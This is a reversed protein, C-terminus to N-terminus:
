VDFGLHIHDRHLPNAFYGTGAGVPVLPGGIEDSGTAGVDLLFRNLRGDELSLGVVPRGDIAWIDVARGRTHNSTSSTGFVEAPHGAAFVSVSMSWSRSLSLLARVVLPDVRGASLEARATDNLDIRRNRLLAGVTSGPTPRTQAPLAAPILGTVQWGGADRRLRVDVTMTRRALGGGRRRWTQEALAMVCASDATLGGYQPYLVRTVAPVAPPALAAPMVLDASAGANLLRQRWTARTAGTSGHAEIAEIVRTAAVKAAPEVEGPDPSWPVVAHPRRTTRPPLPGRGPAASPGSIVAGHSAAGGRTGDPPGCGVLTAAGATLLARRGVNRM